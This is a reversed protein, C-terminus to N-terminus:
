LVQRAHTAHHPTLEYSRNAHAVYTITTACAFRRPPAHQQMFMYCPITYHPRQFHPIQLLRPGAHPTIAHPTPTADHLVTQRRTVDNPAAHSPTTAPTPTSSTPIALWHAPCHEVLHYKTTACLASFPNSIPEGEVGQINFTDQKKVRGHRCM